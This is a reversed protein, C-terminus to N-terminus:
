AIHSSSGNRLMAGIEAPLGANILAQINKEVAYEVRRIRVHITDSIEVIAFSARPDGDFPRGVAGPNVFMTGDIEKVFPKHTHGLVVLRAGKKLAIEKLLDENKETIWQTLDELGGHMALVKGAPSEFELHKSLESLYERTEDNVNEQTWVLSLHGIHAVEEGKYGCGCVPKSFAVAEDYNGMVGEIGEAKFLEICENPFASYGVNDGANIIRNVGERNLERLVAKLAEYNSHVDSIIGLKM